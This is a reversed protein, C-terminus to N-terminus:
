RCAGARHVGNRCHHGDEKKCLGLPDLANIPNNGCYAYLNIGGAYGAPDRNLWRGTQPDYYRFTCLVLGTEGDTYYGAQGGFLYPDNVPYQSATQVAGYADYDHSSVINGNGDLRQVTNGREDFAYFTSIQSAITKNRPFRQRSTLGASGFTNAM